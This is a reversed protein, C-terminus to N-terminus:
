GNAFFLRVPLLRLSAIVKSNYQRHEADSEVTIHHGLLEGDAAIRRSQRRRRSAERAVFTSEVHM